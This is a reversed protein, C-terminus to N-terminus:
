SWVHQQCRRSCGRRLLCETSAHLEIIMFPRGLALLAMRTQKGLVLIETEPPQQSAFRRAKHPTLRRTRGGKSEADTAGISGM